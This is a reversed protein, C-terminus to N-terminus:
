QGEGGGKKETKDRIADQLAISLMIYSTCLVYVYLVYM